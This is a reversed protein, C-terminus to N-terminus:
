LGRLIIRRQESILLREIDAYTKSSAVAQKLSSKLLIKRRSSDKRAFAHLATKTPKPLAINVDFRRVFAPDLMKPINSAAILVGSPEVLDLQQMISIVIRHVEGIDHHSGRRLALADIEDMFIASQNNEAFHFLSHIRTATQGLYAGILTDFRVVYLPLGLETAIAKATVSKGCGPPGHLLIRNRPSLDHKILQDRNNYERIIDNIISRAAPRLEVTDLARKGRVETLFEPRLPNYVQPGTIHPESTPGTDNLAGLLTKAAVHHGARAEAEAIKHAIASAGSWDRLSLSRFLRALDAIKPM